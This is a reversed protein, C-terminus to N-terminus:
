APVPFFLFTALSSFTGGFTNIGLFSFPDPRGIFSLKNGLVFLIPDGWIDEGCSKKELFHSRSKELGVTHIIIQRSNYRLILNTGAHQFSDHEVIPIRFLNTGRGQGLSGGLKGKSAASFDRPELGGFMCIRFLPKFAGPRCNELAPTLWARVGCCKRGFWFEVSSALGTRLWLCFLISGLSCYWNPVPVLADGVLVLGISFLLPVFLVWVLGVCSRSM